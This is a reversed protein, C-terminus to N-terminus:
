RCFPGLMQILVFSIITFASSSSSSQFQSIFHKYLFHLQLSLYFRVSLLAPSEKTEPLKLAYCEALKIAIQLQHVTHKDVLFHPLAELTYLLQVEGAQPCLTEEPDGYSSKGKSDEPRAIRKWLSKHVQKGLWEAGREAGKGVRSELKRGRKYRRGYEKRPEKM